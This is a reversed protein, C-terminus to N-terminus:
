ETPWRFPDYRPVGGGNDGKIRFSRRVFGSEAPARFHIASTDAIVLTDPHEPLIPRAHRICHDVFPLDVVAPSKGRLRFSPERLADEQLSYRHFWQLKMPDVNQSGPVFTFPGHRQDLPTLFRWVKIVTAFSDVHADFQPDGQPAASVNRSIWDYPPKPLNENPEIQKLIDYLGDDQVDDFNLVLIGDRLWTRTLDNKDLVRREYARRALLARLAHAGDDNLTPHPVFRSASLFRQVYCQDKLIKHRLEDVDAITEEFLRRDETSLADILRRLDNTKDDCTIDDTHRRRRAQLVDFGGGDFVQDHIRCQGFNPGDMAIVGVNGDRRCAGLHDYEPLKVALEPMPPIVDDTVPRWWVDCDDAVLSLSLSRGCSESVNAESIVTGPLAPNESPFVWAEDTTWRVCGGLVVPPAIVM